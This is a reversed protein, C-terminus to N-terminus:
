DEIPADLDLGNLLKPAAREAVNGRDDVATAIRWQFVAERERGARWYADGLHDNIEPDNPLIRVARELEVVAEEIRGLRYFAWGLSDIIYGDRPQLEVAREIMDLAPELNIGQDVWSYGLYNLVQPQEPNLELARQFDPEAQDWMGAREYAIGRVYYYRWDRPRDGDIAAILDTYVEASEEWREEYRLIDGLVGLAEVDDPRDAVIERLQAIAGDADGKNNLNEAMRTMASPKLPSSAPLDEYVANAEAYRGSNSLFDGLTMAVVGSQPDLYRALQLFVMGLERSGDRALATGLGHFMEAAGSQVNPAFLGPRQNAEIPARIAEILPHVVGEADFSEVIAKAEEFQGANALIRAHAEAIRTVFPDMEYAERSLDIAAARRGGLDAMIARHFILFEEFGGAGVRDMTTFAADIESNGVQAWARMIGATVGILSGDSVPQLTQIVSNYRRQKLAVSSLVLRALEDTSDAELIQQAMPEARAIDGAVLYALFARGSLLTNGRDARAAESLYGAALEARLSDLAAVGALYNGTTSPTRFGFGSQAAASGMPAVFLATSLLTLGILDRISTKVSVSEGRRWVAVIPRCHQWKQSALM